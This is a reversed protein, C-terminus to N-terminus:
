EGEYDLTLDTIRHKHYRDGEDPLSYWEMNDHAITIWIVGGDYPVHVGGNRFTACIGEIVDDPGKESETYDHYHLSVEYGAGVGKTYTLYPYIVDVPLANSPYADFGFSSFFSHLAETKTM